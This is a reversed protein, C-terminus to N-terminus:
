LVRCCTALWWFIRLRNVFEMHAETYLGKVILRWSHACQYLYNLGCTHSRSMMGGALFRSNLRRMKIMSAELLLFALLKGWSQHVMWSGEDLQAHEAKVQGLMGFASKPICGRGTIGAVARYRGTKEERSLKLVTKTKYWEPIITAM